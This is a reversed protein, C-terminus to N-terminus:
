RDSGTNEIVGQGGCLGCEISETGTDIVTGDGHCNPCKRESGSTGGDPFLTENLLTVHYLYGPRLEGENVERIRRIWDEATEFGAERAYPRLDAIKAPDIESVKEVVVDGQKVGTRSYRYWTKGTTREKARFTLVAGESELQQRAEDVSFIVPGTRGSGGADTGNETM